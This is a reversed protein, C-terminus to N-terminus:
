RTHKLYFKLLQDIEQERAFVPKFGSQRLPEWRYELEPSTEGHVPALRELVPRYGMMMGCRERVLCAMEWVTPAWNGGINFLGGGLRPGPLHLVHLIAACADSLPIFDRRQLGSSRLVMRRTTVAQRCLENLLLMGCNVNPHAPAGYSNSLRLVIGEIGGRARAARVVDEGARHSTAYPHLSGPCLQEDIIGRLPSAYVHATSLYVFRKVGTQEAATLLRATNVGNFALAAAPNAACDEANMGALHVVADVGHCSEALSMDSDWYMLRVSAQPLWPPSETQIRSGLVVEDIGETIMAQGLKGGVYGFGGTILVKM